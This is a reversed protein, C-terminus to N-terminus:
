PPHTVTVPRDSVGNCSQLISLDDACRNQGAVSTAAGGLLGQNTLAGAPWAMTFSYCMEDQTREGFKIKQNTDNDYFCKAEITDGTKLVVEPKMPYFIQSNFDFPKDHIVELMGSKRKVTVQMRRATKHMHPWVGLIHIDGMDDRPDCGGAVQHGKTNPPVCIGESGLSHIGAVHARKSQKATCFKLGSSDTQDSKSDNYYHVELILGANPGTPLDLSTDSPVAVNNAGPAWGVVFHADPEQANCPASTGSAHTANDTAYLIWHHLRATNDLISDFWLMGSGADYPPKFYFCHYQNGELAPNSSIKFPTKDDEGTGGHAKFEFTSECDAPKPVVGQSPSGADGPATNSACTETGKPAGQALWSEFSAIEAASVREHPAPPMPKADSKMRELALERTARGKTIPAPKQLDEWSVLSMPAGFETKAGHCSACNKALVAAVNCPLGSQAVPPTAADATTASGADVGPTPIVGSDTGPLPATGAACQCVGWSGLATCTTAGPATGCSCQGAAGPNCAGVAGPPDNGESTCASATILTFALQAAGLARLWHTPRLRRNRARAFSTRQM